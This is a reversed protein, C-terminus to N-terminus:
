ELAFNFLLSLLADGKKLGNKLPFMDSLNKGVQVRSHTDNLCM